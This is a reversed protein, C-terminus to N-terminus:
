EVCDCIVSIQQVHNASPSKLPRHLNAGQAATSVAPPQTPHDLQLEGPTHVSPIPHSPISLPGPFSPFYVFSILFACMNCWVSEQSNGNIPPDRCLSRKSRHQGTGRLCPRHKHRCHHREFGSNRLPMQPSFYFPVIMITLSPFKMSCKVDVAHKALNLQVTTDKM